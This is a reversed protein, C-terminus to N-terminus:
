RATLFFLLVKIKKFGSTTNSRDGEHRAAVMHTGQQLAVVMVVVPDTLKGGQSGALLRQCFGHRADERKGDVQHTM